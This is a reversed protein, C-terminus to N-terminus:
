TLQPLCNQARKSCSLFMSARRLTCVYVCKTVFGYERVASARGCARVGARESAQKSACVCMKQVCVCVSERVCVCM